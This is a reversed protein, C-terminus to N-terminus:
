ALSDVAFEAVPRTYMPDPLPRGPVLVNVNAIDGPQIDRAYETSLYQAIKAVYSAAVPEGNKISKVLEHAIPIARCMKFGNEDGIAALYDGLAMHAPDDTRWEPNIVPRKRMM